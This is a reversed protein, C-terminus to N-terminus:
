PKASRKQFCYLYILSRLLRCLTFGPPWLDEWRHITKKQKEYSLKSFNRGWNILFAYMFFLCILIYVPFKYFIPMLSIEFKVFHYCNLYDNKCNELSLSKILSVNLNTNM